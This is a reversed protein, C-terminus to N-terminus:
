LQKVVVIQKKYLYIIRVTEPPLPARRLWRLEDVLRARVDGTEEKVAGSVSWFESHSANRVSSAAALFVSSGYGFRSLLEQLPLDLLQAGHLHEDRARRLLAAEERADM